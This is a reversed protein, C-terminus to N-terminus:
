RAAKRAKPRVGAERVNELTVSGQGPNIQSLLNRVRHLAASSYQIRATGGMHLDMPESAITGDSANAPDCIEGGPNYNWGYGTHHYASVEYIKDGQSWSSGDRTASHFRITFAGNRDAPDYFLWNPSSIQLACLYEFNILFKVAQRADILTASLGEHTNGALSVAPVSIQTGPTCSDGGGDDSGGGDDDGGGGDDGVGGVGGGTSCRGLSDGHNLHMTVTNDKVAKDQGSHCVWQKGAGAGDNDSSSCKGDTDGHNLHAQRAWSNVNKDAGNHCVWVKAATSTRFLTLLHSSVASFWALGSFGAMQVDAPLDTTVLDGDGDDDDCTETVSGEGVEIEYTGYGREANMFEVYVAEEDGLISDWCLGGGGCGDPDILDMGTVDFRDDYKHQHYRYDGVGFEDFVDVDFHGGPLGGGGGDESGANYVSRIVVAGYVKSTGSFNHDGGDNDVIVLGQWTASNEFSVDGRVYLIGVGATSERVTLDGDVVVLAPSGTSGITQNSLTTNQDYDIREPGSYSTINAVLTSLSIDPDDNVIDLLGSAGPASGSVLTALLETYSDTEDTLVAHVDVNEGSTGDFNTDIGSIRVGSAMTVDSLVGDVTLADIKRTGSKKLTGSITYEADEFYGTATITVPQGSTGTAAIDMRGKSHAVDSENARHNNYDRRVRSELRNFGSQAIERALVQHQYFAEQQVTGLSARDQNMYAAGSALTVAAVLILGAKGM